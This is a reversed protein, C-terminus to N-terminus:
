FRPTLETILDDPQQPYFKSTPHPNPTLIYDSPHHTSPSPTPLPVTPPPLPTNCKYPSHTTSLFHTVYMCVYMCATGLHTRVSKPVQKLPTKKFLACVCMTLNSNLQSVWCRVVGRM